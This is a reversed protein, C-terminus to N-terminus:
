GMREFVRAIAEMEEDIEEESLFRCGALHCLKFTVFHGFEHRAYRKIDSALESKASNSNFSFIAWREEVSVTCSAEGNMEKTRFSVHWGGGTQTKALLRNIENKYIQYNTM